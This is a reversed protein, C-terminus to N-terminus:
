ILNKWRKEIVIKENWNWVSVFEWIVSSSVCRLSVRSTHSSGPEIGGCFDAGAEGLFWVRLAFLCSFFM